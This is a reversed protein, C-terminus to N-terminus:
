PSKRAQPEAPPDGFGYQARAPKQTLGVQVWTLNMGIRTAETNAWIYTVSKKTAKDVLALKLIPQKTNQYTLQALEIAYPSESGDDYLVPVMQGENHLLLDRRFSFKKDEPKADKGARNIYVWGTFYRVKRNKVPTDTKSGFVHNGDEDRAQDNIWIEDQTLKLTDSVIIRKGGYRQSVFSCAKPKMTGTFAKDAESYRWWVDCGPTPRLQSVELNAFREPTTHANVWTKEDPLNFIELKIANESADETM